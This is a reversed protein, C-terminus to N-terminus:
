GNCLYENWSESVVREKFHRINESQVYYYCFPKDSGVVHAWYDGKCGVAGTGCWVGGGRQIMENDITLIDEQVM